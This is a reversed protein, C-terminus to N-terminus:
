YGLPQHEVPSLDGFDDTIASIMKSDTWGKIGLLLVTTHHANVPEGLRRSWTATANLAGGTNDTYQTEM